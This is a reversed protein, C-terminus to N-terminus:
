PGAHLLQARLKAEDALQGELARLGADAIVQRIEARTRRGTAMLWALGLAQAALAGHDSVRAAALPVLTTLTKRVLAGYLVHGSDVGLRLLEILHHITGRLLADDSGDSGRSHDTTEDLWLGSALQKSLLAYAPDSPGRARRAGSSSPSYVPKSLRESALTSPPAYMVGDPSPPASPANGGGVAARPASAASMTMAPAPRSRTVGRHSPPSSMLGITPPASAIRRAPQPAFAAWGAPAHVPIPRTEATEKARREATRTEVLVFSTYPSAIHHELALAGIRKAVKAGRLQAASLDRIREAAWLQPLVPRHAEAPLNVPLRLSWPEGHLTGRLKLAGSGPQKYRGAWLWPEGDVLPPPTAPALDSVTIDVWEAHLDHVRPAIARAFTAVVKEDIREGPHIFESAGHTQRALQLLLADSVNTGIGFTYIRTKQERALVQRLINAENGVQGDTLLVVCRERGEDGVAVWDLAAMLPPLLETGGLADTAELWTDAEELTRQTFPVLVPHFGDFHDDFRIITFRDGESLQRLCLRLARRAEDLSAGQMSGSRDLLFVVDLNTRAAAGRERGLDPVYAVTVYGADGQKHASVSTLEGSDAEIAIVIDRDLAVRDDAFGVHVSQARPTTVLGHSPSSIQLAADAYVTLDLSATYDPAGIQPSIRDADPVETTPDERGHATRDGQVTGPMYRPAVLTPLMLRLAGEDARLRQIYEVEITVTEGPMLNGVSVTFVNPREQELLAAGDGVQVADHYTEFAAEREMLQSQVLREACTMRFGTVSADSPVPCVYIAELPKTELNEYRQKHTIHLQCASLEGVLEVARLPIPTPKGKHDVGHLGVELRKTM